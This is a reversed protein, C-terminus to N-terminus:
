RVVADAIFDIAAQKGVGGPGAQRKSMSNNREKGSVHTEDIEIPGSFLGGEQSWALRIRHDLFRASKQTIGLERAFRISSIGNRYTVLLYIAYLFKHLPLNSQSVVTNTRVSFYKRCDKCRYPMPKRSKVASSRVSDCHPCCPEGHWRLQILYSEAAEEDPIRQKFEYESIDLIPEYTQKYIKIM